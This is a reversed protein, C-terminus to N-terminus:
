TLLASRMFWVEEPMYCEHERKGYSARAKEGFISVYEEESLHHRAWIRAKARSVPTICWGFCTSDDDCVDAFMTAAGGEGYLFFEGTRKLYLEETRHKFDGTPLDNSWRGVRRATDTNYTKGNMRTKM